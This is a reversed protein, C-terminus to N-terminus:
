DIVWELAMKRHELAKVDEFSFAYDHPNAIMNNLEEIEDNIEKTPKM